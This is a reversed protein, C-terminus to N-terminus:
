LINAFADFQGILNMVKVVNVFANWLGTNNKMKVVNGFGDWLGILNMVKVLAFADLLGTHNKVEVVNAFCLEVTRQFSLMKTTMLIGHQVENLLSKFLYYTQFEWKYFMQRVSKHNNGFILLDRSAIFM